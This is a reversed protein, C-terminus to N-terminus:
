VHSFRSINLLIGISALSVLLSTSGYSIFTLPIGTLPMIGVIGGINIVAQLILWSTIGTAVLKGFIDPATRAIRFGRYALFLFLFLIGCIRLFGLEESMIAFISDGIPEPLFSYKQRSQGFGL